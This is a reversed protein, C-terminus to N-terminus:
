LGRPKAPAGDANWFTYLTRRYAREGQDQTYNRTDGGPLGVIDWIGDPQYPKTGPGYMEQSLLGSAALAYDRVMEADM